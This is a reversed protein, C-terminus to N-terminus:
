YNYTRGSFQKKCVLWVIGYSKEVIRYDIFAIAAGFWGCLNDPEDGLNGSFNVWKM